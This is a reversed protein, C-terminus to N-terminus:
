CSSITSIGLRSSHPIFEGSTYLMIRPVRYTQVALIPSSVNSIYWETARSNWQPENPCLIYERHDPTRHKASESAWPISFMFKTTEILEQFHKLAVNQNYTYSPITRRIVSENTSRMLSYRNSVLNQSATRPVKVCTCVEGSSYVECTSIRVVRESDPTSRWKTTAIDGENWKWQRCVNSTSKNGTVIGSNYNSWRKTFLYMLTSHIHYVVFSKSTEKSSCKKVFRISWASNGSIM